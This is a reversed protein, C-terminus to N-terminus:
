NKMNKFVFDQMLNFKDTLNLLDTKARTHRVYNQAIKNAQKVGNTESRTASQNITYYTV